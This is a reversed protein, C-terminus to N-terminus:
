PRGRGTVSSIQSWSLLSQHPIISINQYRHHRDSGSEPVSPRHSTGSIIRPWQPYGWKLTDRDFCETLCLSCEEMGDDRQVRMLLPCGWESHLYKRRVGAATKLRLYKAQLGLGPRIARSKLAQNIPACILNCLLPLPPQSRHRLFTQWSIMPHSLPRTIVDSHIM